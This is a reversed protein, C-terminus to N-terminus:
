CVTFSGCTRTITERSRIKTRRRIKKKEEAIRIRDAESLQPKAKPPPTSVVRSVVNINMNGGKGPRSMSRMLRIEEANEDDNLDQSHPTYAPKPSHVPKAELQEEGLKKREEHEEERRRKEAEEKIRKAKEEEEKRKLGDNHDKLELAEIEQNIQQVAQDRKELVAVLEAEKAKLKAIENRVEELDRKGTTITGMISKKKMQLNELEQNGRHPSAVPSVTSTTSFTKGYTPSPKPKNEFSPAKNLVSVSQRTQLFSPSSSPSTTENGKLVVSGRAKRNMARQLREEEAKTSDDDKM